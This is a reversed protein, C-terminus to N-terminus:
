TLELHRTIRFVTGLDLGMVSGDVTPRSPQVGHLFPDLLGGISFKQFNSALDQMRPVNPMTECSIISEFKTCPLQAM